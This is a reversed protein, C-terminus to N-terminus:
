SLNPVFDTEIRRKGHTRAFIYVIEKKKKAVGEDYAVRDRAPDV